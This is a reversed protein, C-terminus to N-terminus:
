EEKWNNRLLAITSGDWGTLILKHYYVKWDTTNLSPVMLEYNRDCYITGFFYLNTFRKEESWCTPKLELHSLLFHLINANLVPYSSLRRYLELGSIGGNYCFPEIMEEGWIFQGNRRHEVVKLKEPIFPNADCNIIYTKMEKEKKITNYLDILLDNIILTTVKHNITIITLLILM